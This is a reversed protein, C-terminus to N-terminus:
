NNGGEPLYPDIRRLRDRGLQKSIEFDNYRNLGLRGPQGTIFSQLGAQSSSRNTPSTPPVAPRPNLNATGAPRHRPSMPTTSRPRAARVNNAPPTPQNRTRLWDFIGLWQRFGRGISNVVFAIFVFALIFGWHDHGFMDLAHFADAASEDLPDFLWDQASM